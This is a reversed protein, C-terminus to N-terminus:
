ASVIAAFQAPPPTLGKVRPVPALTVILVPTVTEFLEPLPRFPSGTETRDDAVAEASVLLPRINVADCNPTVTLPVSLSRTLAPVISDPTLRPITFLPPVITVRVLVPEIM